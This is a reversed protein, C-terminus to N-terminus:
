GEEFSSRGGDEREQAKGGVKSWRRRRRRWRSSVGEVLLIDDELVELLPRLDLHPQKVVDLLPQLSLDKHTQWAEVSKM